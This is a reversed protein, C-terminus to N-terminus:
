KSRKRGKNKSRVASGRLSKPLNAVIADIARMKNIRHAGSTNESDDASWVAEIAARQAPPLSAIEENLWAERQAVFLRNEAINSYDPIEIERTNGEDDETTGIDTENFHRAGAAVKGRLYETATNKGALYSYQMINGKTPDFSTSALIRCFAENAIENRTDEDVIRGVSTFARIVGKTITELVKPADKNSIMVRGPASESVTNIAEM